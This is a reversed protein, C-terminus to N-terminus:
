FTAPANCLGFPMVLFEYTGLHTIFAIKEIDEPKMPVQWYGAALDLSTFWKSKQFSDLLDDIRPLPQNDKRTIKNLKRYDICFRISGDPKPILVVPSTWPSTSRRIVGAELM